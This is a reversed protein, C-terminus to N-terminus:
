VILKKNKLHILLKKDMYSGEKNVVSIRLEHKISNEVTIRCKTKCKLKKCLVWWSISFYSDGELTSRNKNIFDVSGVEGYSRLSMSIEEITDFHLFSTM